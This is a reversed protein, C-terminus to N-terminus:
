HAPPKLRVLLMPQSQEAGFHLLAPAEEQTLSSVGTELVLDADQGDAFKMVARQRKADVMGQIPRSVQTDENYYTGGIVAQKNVALQLVASAEPTDESTVAYVGLPLWEDQPNAQDVPPAAAAIAQTQQYYQEPSGAAQGNVYVANNEYYVNGGAGYGYYTPQASAWAGGLWTGVGAWAVPTWAYNAGRGAWGGSYNYGGAYPRRYWNENFVNNYRNGVSGRVDNGWNQRQSVWAQRNNAYNVQNGVNVEGVNINTSNPSGINRDGVNTRNGINRDGIGSRNDGINTRNGINRDGIGGRNDGTNTRDGINRDGIGGRNDGINTRNGINRDGIGGRNDGINPRESGSPLQSPRAGPGGAAPRRSGSGQM